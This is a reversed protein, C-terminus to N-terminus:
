GAIRTDSATAAAVRAASDAIVALRGSVHTVSGVRATGSSARDAVSRYLRVHDEVMREVSFRRQARARCGTRNISRARPLTAAMAHWDDCLFGTVGDEVIETASGERFALVPTGVAMAEIMTLGFPEQWRIPNLLAIA